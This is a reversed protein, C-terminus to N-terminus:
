DLGAPVVNLRKKMLYVLRITVLLSVLAVPWYFSIGASFDPDVVKELGSQGNRAAHLSLVGITNNIFHAAVPVWISGSYVLFYGFLAGLLLRPVFGFFQLHLASFLFASVWIGVHYNRAMKTFIQQIVGRFLFEEGLAPIVAIMFLNFMLGGTSQVEIFKEITMEAQDEMGRMWQEVGSLWNPFTMEQNLYGVVTIFPTSVLLGLIGMLLLRGRVPRKMSLYKLSDGAFLWGIVFPPLVFMGISQMTQIYKLVFIHDPNDLDAASSVALFGDFGFFPIAAFVSLVMVALVSVLIVFLAMIFQSGSRMEQFATFLM